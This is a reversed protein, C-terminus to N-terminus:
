IGVKVIYNEGLILYCILKKTKVLYLFKSNTKANNIDEKDFYFICFDRERCVHSYELIKINYIYNYSTYKEDSVEFTMFRNGILQELKKNNNPHSLYVFCQSGERRTLLVRQLENMKWNNRTKTNKALRHQIHPIQLIYCIIM